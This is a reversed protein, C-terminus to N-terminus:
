FSWIHPIILMAVVFCIFNLPVGIKFFDSFRYGGVGYVYTNTQYGIPTAFSASAAFMVGIIFPRPNVGLHAAVSIAIPTMIAAIANNTLVETLVASILYVTALVFFARHATPTALEVGHVIATALWNAAGTQELALGMALMGFILFVINWEIAEFAEKPKLVGTLCLVVGGVMAGLEIPLWGLSEAVIASVMVGLVLAIMRRPLRSPLPPRDFLVVDTNNRLAEIAQNTGMMLLVDGAELTTTEVQGGVNHARRHIALVVVRYRQRFNIERVTRGVLESHPSVMGEILAGEHAAINELGLDLEAVLDVGRMARTRIIGRPRCALVLRDGAELRATKPDTKLAVGGRVIELVRIGAASVLGAEATTRGIARSGSQVFAETIYERREEPTLMSSITERAPLLRRGFTALYIAGIIATPVGLWTVEFMGLGPQHHQLVIGNVVLNTSTGILTCTGGLVAAYSLPILLKSAPLQMRRALQLVMPLFVVVVPTNNAFASVTAISAVMFLMVVPYRWRAAREVWGFLLDIAGCKVLAASLVFMAAVTLPAPNAFVSLALKEPLIRTVVLVCFLSLATLEAPIKEWVFSVLALVLLVFVFVIQLPM